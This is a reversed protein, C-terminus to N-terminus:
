YSRCASARKPNSCYWDVLYTLTRQDTEPLLHTPHPNWSSFVVDGPAEHINSEWELVHTQASRIWDEDSKDAFSGNYIVGYKWGFSKLTDILPPVQLKWPRAWQVDFRVINPADAGLNTKVASLWERFERISGLGSAPEIDVVKANPYFQKVKRVEDAFGGALDPISYHCAGALQTYHGFHLAEDVVITDLQAGLKRLRHAMNLNEIMSHAAGEVKQGCNQAPVAGMVVGLSVHHRNLFEFIKSLKEDPQTQVYRRVIELGRISALSHQWPSGETFLQPFDQDIVFGAPSPNDDVPSLWITQGTAPIPVVAFLIRLLAFIIRRLQVPPMAEVILRNGM